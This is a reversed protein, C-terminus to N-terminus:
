LKAPDEQRRAYGLDGYDGKKNLEGHIKKKFEFDLVIRRLRSGAAHIQAAEAEYIKYTSAGHSVEAPKVFGAYLAQAEPALCHDLALRKARKSLVVVRRVESKKGVGVSRRLVLGQKSLHDLDAQFQKPNSRYSAREVDQEHLTRFRGAERNVARETESSEYRNCGCRVEERQHTLARQEPRAFSNGYSRDARDDETGGGGARGQSLSMRTQTDPKAIRDNDERDLSRSRAFAGKPVETLETSICHGTRLQKEIHAPKRGTDKFLLKHCRM